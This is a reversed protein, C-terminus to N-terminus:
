QKEARSHDVNQSCFLFTRIYNRVFFFLYYKRNVNILNSFPKFSIISYSGLVCDSNNNKNKIASKQSISMRVSFSRLVFVARTKAGFRGLAKFIIRGGISPFLYHGTKFSICVIFIYMKSFRFGNLKVVARLILIWLETRELRPYLKNRRYLFWLFGARIVVSYAIFADFTCSILPRDLIKKTKFIFFFRRDYITGFVYDYLNKEGAVVM